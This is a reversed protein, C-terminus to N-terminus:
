IDSNESTGPLEWYNSLPARSLRKIATIKSYSNLTRLDEAIRYANELIVISNVLNSQHDKLNDTQYENLIVAESDRSQSDSGQVRIFKNMAEFNTKIFNDIIKTKL